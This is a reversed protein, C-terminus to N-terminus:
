RKRGKKTSDLAKSEDYAPTDGDLVRKWAMGFTDGLPRPSLVHDLLYAPPNFPLQYLPVKWSEMPLHPAKLDEWGGPLFHARGARSRKAELVLEKGVLEAAAKKYEGASWGNWLQVNKSTPRALALTQLYLTAANTSIEFHAAVEGVLHPASVNPNGEYVGPATAEGMRQVLSAFDPNQSIWWAAWGTHPLLTAFSRFIDDDPRYKAPHYTIRQSWKNDEFSFGAQDAAHKFAASAKEDSSYISGMAFVLGPHKLREQLLPWVKLVAERLPDGSPAYEYLHSLYLVLTNLHHESFAETWEAEQGTTNKAYPSDAPSSLWGLMLGPKIMRALDALGKLTEESAALRRGVVRNWAAALLEANQEPKSWLEEPDAPMAERYIRLRAESTINNLNDRAVRAEAAKLGMAERVETPLFNAEYTRFYPLGACVLCAEALSLGTLESLRRPEEPNWPRPGRERVLNALSKLSEATEEAPLASASVLNTKDPVKFQGGHHFEIGSHVADKGWGDRELLYGNAGDILQTSSHYSVEPLNLAIRRFSKPQGYLSSEAWGELLDAAVQCEARDGFPAVARWALSRFSGAFGSLVGLPPTNSPDPPSFISSPPKSFLGAVKQLLGPKPAESLKEVMRDLFAIEQRLDHDNNANILFSSLLEKLTMAPLPASRPGANEPLSNVFNSLRGQLENALQVASQVGATIRADKLSLKGKGELLKAATADSIERLQLSDAENRWRLLPWWIHPLRFTLSQPFTDWDALTAKSEPDTVAASNHRYTLLRRGGPITVAGQPQAKGRISSLEGSCSWGDLTEAEWRSEDDDTRLRFGHMGLDGPLPYLSCVHLSLKTGPQAYDELFAPLSFRGAKGTRPDYERLRTEGSTWETNWCTEGDCFMRGSSNPIEADGAQVARGGFTHGIGPLEAAPNGLSSSTYGTISVPQGGSWSGVRDYNHYYETLFQGGIFYAGNLRANAPLRLDHRGLIGDYGVAIARTSNSIVLNPFYGDYELEVKGDPSLEQVAQEMAPWTLEDPVFGRLTRGLIAAISLNQVRERLDAYPALLEPVGFGEWSELLTKLRPLAGRELDDIQNGLGQRRLETWGPKGIIAAEFSSNGAHRELSQLLIAKLKPQEMCHKVDRRREAGTATAWASLDSPYIYTETEVELAIGLSLMEECLDLDLLRWGTRVKVPVGEQTLRDAMRRVLPFLADPNPASSYTSFSGLIGSLWEAVAGESMEEPRKDTLYRTLNWEELLGLWTEGHKLRDGGFVPKLKLVALGLETSGKCLEKVSAKATNWFDIPARALSAAGLVEEVFAREESKVEKGAAKALKNLDKLMAAWPPMGGLTRRLCLERYQQYAEEPSREKALDTAYGTLAKVSIAGALAFELFTDRRLNEDVTLAHVKESDRAKTFMQTAMNSNSNELYVRGAEEYFSPLFHPVSAALRGAITTFGDKAAGPKSRVLRAQARFEKVVELALSGRAPDHILAWAPFVLGKRLQRGVPTSPGAPHSFGHFEMGLDEAPVLTSPVLRAVVREGLAPHLYHRAAVEDLRKDTDGSLPAVGGAQAIQYPNM